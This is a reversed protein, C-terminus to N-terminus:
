LCAKSTQSMRLRSAAVLASGYDINTILFVAVAIMELKHESFYLIWFFGSRRRNSNKLIVSFNKSHLQCCARLLRPASYHRNQIEVPAGRGALPWPRSSMRLMRGWFVLYLMLGLLMVCYNCQM